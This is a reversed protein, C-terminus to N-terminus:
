ELLLRLRENSRRLLGVIGDPLFLAMIIVLLGIILPQAQAVTTLLFYSPIYVVIAGLLPGISTGLGGIIIMALMLLSFTFDFAPGATVGSISWAYVAGAAGGFLGGFMYGTLKLTRPSVGVSSAADEENKIARIGFGIRSRNVYYTLVIEIM